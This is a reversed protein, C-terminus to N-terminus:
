RNEPEIPWLRLFSGLLQDIRKGEETPESDADLCKTFEDVLLSEVMVRESSVPAVEERLCRLLEPSRHNLIAVLLRAMEPPLQDLVSSTM